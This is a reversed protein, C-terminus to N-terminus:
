RHPVATPEVASSAAGAVDRQLAHLCTLLDVGRTFRRREGSLVHEIEGALDADPESALRLAYTQPCPHKM